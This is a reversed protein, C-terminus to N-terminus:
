SSSPGPTSTFGKSSPTVFKGLDQGEAIVQERLWTHDTYLRRAADESFPLPTGNEEVGQWGMTYAVAMDTLSADLEDLPPAEALKGAKRAALERQQVQEFQRRAHERVRPSRPGRVTFTAGIGTSTGPYVPEFAHGADCADAASPQRADFSM